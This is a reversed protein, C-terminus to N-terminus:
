SRCRTFAAALNRMFRSYGDRVLPVDHALVDITVYRMGDRDLQNDLFTTNVSPSVVICNVQNDDLQKKIALVQRIGPQVEENNIFSTVHALGFQKEFYQYGNHYVAFHLLGSNQLLSNIEGELSRLETQLLALNAQYKARNDPDQQMLTDALLGAIVTANVTDLWVHPDLGEGIRHLVLGPINLVTLITGPLESIVSDLGTELQPGTWIFVQAQGMARRQSPRLSPHHPDQTADLVLVPESVGDTVAKAILQLPKISTVVLPQAQLQVCSVLLVLGLLIGYFIKGMFNKPLM